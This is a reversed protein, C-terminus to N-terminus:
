QEKWTGGPAELGKKKCERGEEGREGEGEGLLRRFTLKEGEERGEGM